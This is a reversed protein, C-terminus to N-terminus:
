TFNCISDSRYHKWQCSKVIKKLSKYVSLPCSGPDDKRQYPDPKSDEGSNCFSECVALKFLVVQEIFVFTLLVAFVGSALISIWVGSQTVTEAAIRFPMIFPTFLPIYSLILVLPQDPAGFAFLGGYFGIMAIFVIPTVAKNVDEIKTVLSGFFAALVVYM